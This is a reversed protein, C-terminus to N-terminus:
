SANHEKMTPHNRFGNPFQIVTAHTGPQGGPDPASTHSGSCACLTLAAAGALALALRTRTM